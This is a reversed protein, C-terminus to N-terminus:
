ALQAYVEGPYRSYPTGKLGIRKASLEDTARVTAITKGEPSWIVRFTYEKWTVILDSCVRFTPADWVSTEPLPMARLEGKVHKAIRAAQRGNRHMGWRAIGNDDTYFVGYLKQQAM